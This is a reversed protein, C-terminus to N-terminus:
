DSIKRILNVREGTTLSLNLPTEVYGLTLYWVFTDVEKNKISFKIELTQKAPHSLIVTEIM